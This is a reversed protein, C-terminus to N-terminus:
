FDFCIRRRFNLLSVLCFNWCFLVAILLDCIVFLLDIRISGVRFCKALLKLLYFISLSLIQFYRSISLFLPKQFIQAQEFPKFSLSRQTSKRSNRNLKTNPQTQPIPTTSSKYTPNGIVNLFQQVTWGEPNYWTTTRNVRWSQSGERIRRERIEPSTLYYIFISSSNTSKQPCTKRWGRAEEM